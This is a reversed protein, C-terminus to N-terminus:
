HASDEGKAGEKVEKGGDRFEGGACRLKRQMGWTCIRRHTEQRASPITPEGQFPARQHALAEDTERRPLARCSGLATEHGSGDGTSTASCGNRAVSGALILTYAGHIARCCHM